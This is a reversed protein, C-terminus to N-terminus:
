HHHVPLGGVQHHHNKAVAGAWEVDTLAETEENKDWIGPDKGNVVIVPDNAPLAYRTRFSQVDSLHINCRGVIAVTVGSGNIGASYLPNVNYITAFDGPSLYHNGGNTYVPEASQGGTDLRVTKLGRNMPQRPINHMTVVGSVLHALGRPIAPDTANAYRSQGNIRYNRIHTHFAREVQLAKGSFNVWTAGEGWKESLSVM